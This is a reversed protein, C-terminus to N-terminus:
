STPTGMLSWCPSIRISGSIGMIPPGKRSGMPRTMRATWISCWMRRRGGREREQLYVAGLAMALRYCTRPGIANELRCITPQSALDGGTEPLRGCVQKLMPDRRLTTADNQDEYGCAIQNVRQAVLTPLAHRQGRRKRWEPIVAALGRTLGLAEDAERVWALGGDSTLSGGLFDVELPLAGAGAFHISPTAFKNM